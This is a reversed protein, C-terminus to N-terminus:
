LHGSWWLVVLLLVLLVPWRWRRTSEAEKLGAEHIERLVAEDPHRDMSPSRKGTSPVTVM